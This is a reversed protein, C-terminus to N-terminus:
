FYQKAQLVLLSQYLMNCLSYGRTNKTVGCSIDGKSPYTNTIKEISLKYGRQVKACDRVHLYDYPTPKSSESRGNKLLLSNIAILIAERYIFKRAYFSISKGM